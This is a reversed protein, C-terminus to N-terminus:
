LENVIRAIRGALLDSPSENPDVEMLEVPFALNHPRLILRGSTYDAYRVTLHAGNRVAYLNPRASNYPMLSTYHRDILVLAEPLLLPEMPQADAAAIAV